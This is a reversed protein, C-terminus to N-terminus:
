DYSVLCKRLNAAVEARLLLERVSGLGKENGELSLFCPLLTSLFPNLVLLIIQLM